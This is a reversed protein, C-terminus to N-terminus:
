NDLGLQDAPIDTTAAAVPCIGGTLPPREILDAGFVRVRGPNTVTCNGQELVYIRGLADVTMGGPSQFPIGLGAGREVRRERSNFVMLGNLASLVLIRDGGDSAVWRPSPGFGGFSALEVNRVPDVVSLRGEVPPGDGSSLVYLLGDAGATAPGANGPGLLPISDGFGNSLTSLWSPQSSCPAPFPPCGIRNGAVGYVRGRVVGFGQPGGPAPVLDGAGTAPDIRFVSEPDRAAVYLRGDEGFAIASVPQDGFLSITRIAEQKAIDVLIVSGGGSLGVAALNGRVALSTALVPVPSISIIRLSASSDVPTVILSREAQDLVVLVEVPLSGTSTTPACAGAVLV